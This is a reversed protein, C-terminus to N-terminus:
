TTIKQTFKSTYKSWHSGSVNKVIIIPIESDSRRSGDLAEFSLEYLVFVEKWKESACKM